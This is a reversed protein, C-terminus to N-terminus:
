LTEQYYNVTNKIGQILPTFKWQPYISKFKHDDLIKTMAGDPYKTNFIFKAKYNLKKAAMQAIEKISYAKNQAFNIPYIQETLSISKVLIKAVDHIYTWERVPQGTGWIEFNKENKRKANILRLIIGNLAHVKNPDCYDGPGYANAILWNVSKIQYQRNYCQAYAYIMRRTSAYSLVSDHVHGKQWDPEFHINAEGPYSCNSIPNIIKTKPSVLKVAEYINNIILMNDRILDAAYKIAYHVSGVHAACNIITTPQLEKLTSAFKQFDLVDHGNRRSLILYEYKNKVLETIVHQGLFGFGGLVVIKKNKVM